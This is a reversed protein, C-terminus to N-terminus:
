IETSPLDRDVRYIGSQSHDLLYSPRDSGLAANVNDRIVNLYLQVLRESEPSANETQQLLEVLANTCRQMQMVQKWIRAYDWAPDPMPCDANMMESQQQQRLAEIEEPTM